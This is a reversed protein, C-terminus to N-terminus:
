STKYSTVASMLFVPSTSPTSTTCSTLVRCRNIQGPGDSIALLVDRETAWVVWFDDESAKVINGNIGARSLLKCVLNGAPIDRIPIRNGLIPNNRTCWLRHIHSGRRPVQRQGLLQPLPKCYTIPFTHQLPSHPHPPPSDKQPKLPSTIQPLSNPPKFALLCVHM